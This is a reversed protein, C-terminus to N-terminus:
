VVSKRDKQGFGIGKIKASSTITGNEYNTIYETSLDPIIEKKLKNGAGENAFLKKLLAPLAM